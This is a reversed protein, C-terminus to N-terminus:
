TPVRWLVYLIGSILSLIWIIQLFHALTVGPTDANLMVAINPIWGGSLFTWVANVGQMLIDYSSKLTIGNATGVDVDGEQLQDKASTQYDIFDQTTDDILPVSYSKGYLGNFGGVVLSLVVVFGVILLIGETWGSVNGM